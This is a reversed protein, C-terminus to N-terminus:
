ARRIVSLTKVAMWGKQSSALGNVWLSQNNPLEHDPKQEVGSHWPVVNVVMIAAYPDM